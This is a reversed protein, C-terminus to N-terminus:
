ISPPVSTTEHFVGRDHPNITAVDATDNFPLIPSDTTTRRRVFRWGAGVRVLEDDYRATTVLQVPARDRHRRFLIASCRQTARDGDIRIEADATVHVMGYGVNTILRRLQECGRWERGDLVMTGDEAFTDIWSDVDLDDFSRNYRATLEAILVRDMLDQGRDPESLAV